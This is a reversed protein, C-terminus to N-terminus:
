MARTAYHARPQASNCQEESRSKQLRTHPLSVGLSAQHHLNNHVALAFGMQSAHQLFRNQLGQPVLSDSVTPAMSLRQPLKNLLSAAKIDILCRNKVQQV